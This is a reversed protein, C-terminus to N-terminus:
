AQCLLLGSVTRLRPKLCVGLQQLSEVNKALLKKGLAKVPSGGACADEDLKAVDLKIIDALMILPHNAADNGMDCDVAM